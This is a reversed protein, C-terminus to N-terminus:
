NLKNKLALYKTKYINYKNKYIDNDSINFSKEVRTKNDKSLINFIDTLNDIFIIRSSAIYEGAIILKYIIFFKIKEFNFNNFNIFDRFYNDLDSYTKSNNIAKINKIFNYVNVIFNSIEHEICSFQAANWDHLLLKNNINNIYIDLSFDGNILYIERTSINMTKATNFLYATCNHIIYDYDGKNVYESIKKHINNYLYTRDYKEINSKFQDTNFSNYYEIISVSVKKVIELYNNNSIVIQRYKDNILEMEVIRNINDYRYVKLTEFSNYNWNSNYINSVIEAYMQLQNYYVKYYLNNIIYGYSAFSSTKIAKQGKTISLLSEQKINDLIYKVNDYNININLTYNDNKLFQYLFEHITTSNRMIAITEENIETNNYISNIINNYVDCEINIEYGPYITFLNLVGSLKKFAELNANDTFIPLNMLKNENNLIKSYILNELITILHINNDYTLLKYFIDSNLFESSIGIGIKILFTKIIEPNILKFKPKLITNTLYLKLDQAFWVLPINEIVGNTLVNPILVNSLAQEEFGFEFPNKGTNRDTLPPCSDNKSNTVIKIFLKQMFSFMNIWIKNNFIQGQLKKFAMMGAFFNPFCKNIDNNREYLIPRFTLLNSQSKNFFEELIDYLILSNYNDSDAIFCNEIEPEFLPIYRFITGLLGLHGRGDKNMFNKMTIEILEIRSEYKKCFDLLKINIDNGKDNVSTDIYIIFNYKDYKSNNILSFINDIMINIYITIDKPKGLYRNTATAGGVLGTIKANFITYSIINKKNTLKGSLVNKNIGLTDNYTSSVFSSTIRNTSNVYNNVKLFIFDNYNFKISDNSTTFLKNYIYNNDFKKDTLLNYLKTLMRNDREFLWNYKNNIENYLYKFSEFIDKSYSSEYDYGYNNGYGTYSNDYGTYGNGTYGNDYGFGSIQPSIYYDLSQPILPMQQPMQPPMQPPIQQAMQLPIINIPLPFAIPGIVNGYLPKGTNNDSNLNQKVLTKISKLKIKNKLYNINYEKINEQDTLIVLNYKKKQKLKNLLFLYAANEFNEGGQYEVPSLKPEIIEYLPM